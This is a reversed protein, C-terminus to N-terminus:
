RHAQNVTAQRSFPLTTQKSLTSYDAQEWGLLIARQRGMCLGDLGARHSYYRSLIQNLESKTTEPAPVPPAYDTGSIAVRGTRLKGWELAENRVIYENLKCWYGFTVPDVMTDLVYRWADRMNLIAQIDDLRVSPM